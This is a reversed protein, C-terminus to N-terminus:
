QAVAVIQSIDQEDRAHRYPLEREITQAVFEEPRTPRGEPMKSKDDAEGGGTQEAGQEGAAKEFRAAIQGAEVARASRRQAM